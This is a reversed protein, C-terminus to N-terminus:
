SQVDNLVFTAFQRVQREEPTRDLSDSNVDGNATTGDSTVGTANPDDGAGQFLNQGFLLSLIVLVVGGLGMGPGMMGIGGGGRRDEVNKNSGGPMWRMSNAETNTM